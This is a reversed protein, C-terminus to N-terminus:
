SISTTEAEAATQRLANMLASEVYSFALWHMMVWSFESPDWDELSHDQWVQGGGLRLKTVDRKIGKPPKKPLPLLGAEVVGGEAGEVDGVDSLCVCVCVCTTVTYVCVCVCVCM